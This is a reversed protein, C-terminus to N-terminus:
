WLDGVEKVEAEIDDGDFWGEFWGEEEVSIYQDADLDATNYVGTSFEDNNLLGDSDSDWATYYDNNWGASWESQDLYGSSDEDLTDFDGDHDAGYWREAGVAYEDSSIQVDNDSDWDAYMGTAFERDSLMNDSDSDWADYYGAENFGTTFGDYGANSDFGDYMQAAAPVALLSAIATVTAFKRFTM